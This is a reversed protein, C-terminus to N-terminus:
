KEKLPQASYSQHQYYNTEKGKYIDLYRWCDSTQHTQYIFSLHVAQQWQKLEHGVVRGYASAAWM